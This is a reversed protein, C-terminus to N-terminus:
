SIKRAADYGYLFLCIEKERRNRMGQSFEGGSYVWRRLQSPVEAPGNANLLRLLRSNRYASQGVNFTFSTLTDFMEDTLPHTTAGEVCKEYRDLDQDFLDFADKISFNESYKLPNGRLWIKGSTLEDPLLKHGIGITPYGAIDLHVDTRVGEWLVLLEMGGKTIQRPGSPLGAAQIRESRASIRSALENLAAVTLSRDQETM